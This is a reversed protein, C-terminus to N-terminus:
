WFRLATWSLRWPIASIASSSGPAPMASSRWWETSPPGCATVRMLDDPAVIQPLLAIRCPLFLTQVVGSGLLILYLLRPEATVALLFSMLAYLLNVAVFLRKQNRRDCFHGAMTGLFLMPLSQLLFILSISFSAGTLKFLKDALGITTLKTGIGSIFSSGLFLIWNRPLPRYKKLKIM